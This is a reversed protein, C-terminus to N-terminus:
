ATHAAKKQRSKKAAAFFLLHRGACPRRTFRALLERIGACLGFGLFRRRTFRSLLVRIGACLGFDLFRRRTFRSFLVRIGACFAFRRM